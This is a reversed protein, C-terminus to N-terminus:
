CIHIYNRPVGTHYVSGSARNSHAQNLTIKNLRSTLFAAKLQAKKQKLHNHDLNPRDMRSMNKLYMMRIFCFMCILQWLHGMLDPKHMLSHLREM